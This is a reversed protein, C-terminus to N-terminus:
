SRTDPQLVEFAVCATCHPVAPTMKARLIEPLAPGFGSLTLETSHQNLKRSCDLVNMQVDRNVSQGRREDDDLRDPITFADDDNM